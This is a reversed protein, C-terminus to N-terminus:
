LQLRGSSDGFSELHIGVRDLMTLYLNAMPTNGPYKLHRDMKVGAAGGVFLVPLDVHSHVNGDSICSAYVFMMHDLLSGDGDPASRMKELFYAVLETHLLDIKAVKAIKAPDGQHHTLPHHPDFIGIEDYIRTGQERGMLLTCVRTIDVQFALMELDFMLKVHDTYKSPTGAPRELVPLERSAQKESIQIRREIDRTADLYDSLKARDSRDVDGLLRKVDQMVLDLISRENRIRRLREESDTSDGDGFLREFVRRPQNEMPIPTTPTSWCLTNSYTCSYGLDCVGLLDNSDIALELSAFQTDKGFKKAAIQDVSIGARLEAGETKKAHVGTLFVTSARPHFGGAEGQKARAENQALGSLVLLRDRFPALPELTPPMKFGAGETAPTWRDMIVGNPTYAFAMRVPPSAAATQQASALAPVMADLLPLALTAGAGRLFTRRPISKKFIMM